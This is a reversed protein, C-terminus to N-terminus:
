EGVNSGGGDSLLREALSKNAQSIKAIIQQGQYITKASSKALDKEDGVGHRAKSERTALLEEQLRAKMKTYKEEIAIEPAAEVRLIVNGNKDVGVPTYVINGTPSTSLRNRLRMLMLDCMIINGVQDREVKNKMDADMGEIWQKAWVAICQLEMPCSEGIPALNNELFKCRKSYQCHDGGCLLPSVSVVGNLMDDAFDAMDHIRSHEISSSYARTRIANPFFTLIRKFDLYGDETTESLVVSKNGYRSTGVPRGGVRRPTTEVEPSEINGHGNPDLDKDDCTSLSDDNGM